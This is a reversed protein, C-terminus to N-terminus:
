YCISYWSKGQMEVNRLRKVQHWVFFYGTEDANYVDAPDFQSIIKKLKRREEPLRVTSVSGAEGHLRYVRLQNRKKFKSAM